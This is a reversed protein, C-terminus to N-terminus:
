TPLGNLWKANEALSHLVGVASHPKGQILNLRSDSFLPILFELTGDVEVGLFTRNLGAVTVLRYSRKIGGPPSDNSELQKEADNIFQALYAPGFAAPRWVGRRSVITISSFIVGNLTVPILLRQQDLMASKPDQGDNFTTLRSLPIFYQPVPDLLGLAGPAIDKTIGNIKRLAPLKIARKLLDFAKTRAALMDASLDGPKDYTQVPGSPVGAGAVLAPQAKPAVGAKPAQPKPPPVTYSPPQVPPKTPAQAWLTFPATVCFGVSLALWPKM